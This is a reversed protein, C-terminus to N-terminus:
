KLLCLRKGQRREFLDHFLLHAWLAFGGGSESIAWVCKIQPRLLMWANGEATDM